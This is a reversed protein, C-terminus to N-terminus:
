AAERGARERLGALYAANVERYQRRLAAEELDSVRGGQRRLERLDCRVNAEVAWPFGDGCSLGAQYAEQMAEYLGSCLNQWFPLVTRDVRRVCDM